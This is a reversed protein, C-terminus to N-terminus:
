KNINVLGATKPSRFPLKGISKPAKSRELKFQHYQDLIKEAWYRYDKANEKNNILSVLKPDLQNGLKEQAKELFQIGMEKSGRAFYLAARYLNAIADSQHSYKNLAM